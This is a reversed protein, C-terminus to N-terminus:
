DRPSPSTYLLCPKLKASTLDIIVAKVKGKDGIAHSERGLLHSRPSQLERIQIGVCPGVPLKSDYFLSFSRGRKKPSIRVGMLLLTLISMLLPRPMLYIVLEFNKM